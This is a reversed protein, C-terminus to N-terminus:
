KTKRAKQPISDRSVRRLRKKLHIVKKMRSGMSQSFLRLDKMKKGLLIMTSLRALIKRKKEMKTIERM